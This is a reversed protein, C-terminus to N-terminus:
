EGKPKPTQPLKRGCRHCFIRCDDKIPAGDCWACPKTNITTRHNKVDFLIDGYYDAIEELTAGKGAPENDAIHYNLLSNSM